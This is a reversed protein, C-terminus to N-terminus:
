FDGKLSLGLALYYKPTILEKSQTDFLENRFLLPVKGFAQQLDQAIGKLDPYDGTLLIIEIEDDHQTLTRYFNIVRQIEGMMVNIEYKLYSEDGIWIPESAGHRDIKREWNEMSLNMKFQRLLLLKHQSLVSITVTQLDFQVSLTTSGDPIAHDSEGYVKHFLRYIALSSVDAVTPKLNVSKMIQTYETVLEEPAAFLLVEKKDEKQGLVDIDFIPNDFPLHINTGLELYLHGKIEDDQIDIPTEIKRVIVRSDPVLFQVERNKLKWKRVCDRLITRFREVDMIKGDRIVGSPLYHEGCAIVGSLDPKKSDIYRIVHDKIVFSVMKRKPISRKNGKISARLGYAPREKRTQTAKERRSAIM